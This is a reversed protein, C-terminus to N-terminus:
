CADLVYVDPLNAICAGLRVLDIGPRGTIIMYIYLVPVPVGAHSTGCLRCVRRGTCYLVVGVSKTVTLVYWAADPLCGM